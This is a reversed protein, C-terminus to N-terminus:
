LLSAQTLRDALGASAEDFRQWDAAFRQRHRRARSKELKILTKFVRREAQDLAHLKRFRALHARAVSADQHLGLREHLVRLSGLMPELERQYSGELLELQYRLRKVDKRLRYLHKDPSSDEISRGRRQVRELLPAVSSDAVQEIRVSSAQEPQVAANILDRYSSILTLYEDGSLAEALDRHAAEHLQGLHEHYRDLSTQASPEVGERYAALHALHVDLDRVKGLAAALWRLHPGLRNAEEAPLVTAFARLAARARGVAVRMQHVGEVHVGEFAFPEYLKIQYLQANLHEIAADLWRSHRGLAASKLARRALPLGATILGREYKSLRADILAPELEVTALITALLEHPGNKLEIALEKFEISDHAYIRADDFAMEVLGRPHDPHSLRYSARRNEVTFLPVIGADPHLLNSLRDGVPGSSPRRLDEERQLPQEVEERDFIAARARTIEKLAIHRGQDDRRERYSWGATRLQHDVTDFYRDTFARRGNPQIRFGAWALSQQLRRLVDKPPKGRTTLFKAELEHV